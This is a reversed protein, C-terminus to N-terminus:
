SYQRDFRVLVPNGIFQTIGAKRLFTEIHQPITSNKLLRHLAMPLSFQRYEYTKVFGHQNFMKQIESDWFTYYQRTNKEIRKKLPFTILSLINLSAYTPYDIVITQKAVRCLEAVLAGRNEIHSILRVSTVLDFQHNIFPMQLLDGTYFNVTTNFSNRVRTACAEDSGLVSTQYGLHLLSQCLQAHGGGVDLASSGNIHTKNLLYLLGINQISLLYNGVQGSFRSAYRESSTEIDPTERITNRIVNTM